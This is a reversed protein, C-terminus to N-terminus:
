SSIVSSNATTVSFESYTLDDDGGSKSGDSYFANNQNYDYDDKDALKLVFINIEQKLDRYIFKHIGL